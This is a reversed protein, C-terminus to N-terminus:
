EFGLTAAYTSPLIPFKCTDINSSEPADHETMLLSCVKPLGTCGMLPVWNTLASPLVVDGNPVTIIGTVRPFKCTSCINIIRSLRDVGTMSPHSKKVLCLRM